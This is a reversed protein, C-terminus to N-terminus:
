WIELILPVLFPVLITLIIGSCVSIIAYEKGIFKTIVPKMVKKQNRLLIGAFIGIAMIIIVTFM